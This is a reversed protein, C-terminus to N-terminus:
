KDESTLVPVAAAAVDELAAVRNGSQADAVAKTLGELSTRIESQHRNAKDAWGYTSAGLGILTLGDTVTLHGSVVGLVAGLVILGGGIKTKKGKLWAWVQKM